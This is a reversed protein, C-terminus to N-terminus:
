LTLCAVFLTTAFFLIPEYSLTVKKREAFVSSLKAAYRKRLFFVSILSIVAAASLVIVYTVAFREGSGRLWIISVLNNLFHIILSPIISGAAIDIVAFIMGALFAYPIQYLNCHAFAFFLASFIVAYKKSYPSIFAIPIYRFLAEECVSTLAAHTLIIVFINGSLETDNSAGLATLLLSTLWSVLFVVAIIPATVPLVLASNERSIKLGPALFEVGNCKKIVFALLVPVLFGLYYIVNGVVGGTMGSAAIFVIFVLDLFTVYKLAKQM